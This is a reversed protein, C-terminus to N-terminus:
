CPARDMATERLMSTGLCGSLFRLALYLTVQILSLQLASFSSEFTHAAMPNWLHYEIHGFYKLLVRHKWVAGSEAMMSSMRTCRFQSPLISAIERDVLRDRLARSEHDDQGM